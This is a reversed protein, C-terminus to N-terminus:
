SNTPEDCVARHIASHLARIPLMVRNQKAPPVGRLVGVVEVPTLRLADKLTRGTVLEALLECYAFLTACTSAKFAARRITGKSVKLSFQVQLGNKDACAEGSTQLWPGRSRRLARDFYDAVTVPRQREHDTRCTGM